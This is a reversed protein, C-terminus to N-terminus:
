RSVVLRKTVVQNELLIKVFYVGASHTSLDIEYSGSALNAAAAKVALKGTLDYVEINAELGPIGEVVLNVRGNTPNPFLHIRNALDVNKTSTVNQVIVLQSSTCGNADVVELTYFGAKLGSVYAESSIVKGEADVWTYQYGAVGGGVSVEISGNQQMNVEHTVNVVTIVIAAPQVVVASVVEECGDGDTVTLTYDGAPVNNLDPTTAGTNWSYTYGAAGGTVVSALSGDSGGFCLVPTNELVVAMSEQVTLTFSCAASNGNGDSVAYSVVTKGKPFVSGSALGATLAPAPNSACNDSTTPLAYEGVPQCYPLTMDAPCAITPAIDDKVTVIATGANSNGSADTVTLVVANEGVNSCTFASVDLSLELTGCNDSSGNDVMAPTISAKGNEDLSVTIDQVLVAPKTNDAVTITAQASSSNGALDVVTLTVEHDGLTSCDFSSVDLSMSEIACNDTSGDDIMDPTIAANGSADVPVTINKTVANPAEDDNLEVEIALIEQCDNADGISVTYTGPALNTISPTTEGNSWTYTYDPDPTGGMAVVTVLGNNIGCDANALETMEVELPNPELVTVTAIAPCNVVDYVTVSYTGPSLNSITATTEGNSWAYDFPSLGGNLTVTAQGDNAGFCSVHNLNVDAVLACGFPAVPITQAATCGNADTVIVTYNASPLGTITAATEGNSWLYTFPATGGTPNASATGDNANAATLGTATANVNVVAPEEITVSGVVECANDDIVTVTYTGPSLNAITATTEGNSWEFAFPPAANDLNVSAAGDNAGTCSVDEGTMAAVVTCGFQNVTVTQTKVCNNGDAITVTYNGPTLNTITQTTGGNSWAYTYSGTGGSVSATASGDNVGPASQANSSTSVVLEAPQYIAVSASATCAEGDTITVVYTGASLNSATASTAGNSWAFAYTGTGGGATVTASGTSNGFCAVNTPTGMVATVPPTETVNTASSAVCGNNNNSVTLTYTGPENVTPTLSNAGSVINGNTTTWQYTFQNGSSSGTGNLVLSSAFCNLLGNPGANATPQTINQSVLANATATCGNPATVTLAYNGPASVQPNQQTSSFGNPGSWSYTVDPTNSNGNLALNSVLCNLTGGSATVDPITNNQSVVATATATCGSGPHTVTLTYTGGQSVSPNQQNSSFGGPGAWSYTVGPTTSNGALQVSSVTCTIEGGSASANPATTNAAVTTTATKTCGNDTNTIKLTYSGGANVTPTLTTAGSVINGGTTTWLYTFNPGTSGSGSLAISPNNCNITGPPGANATPAATNQPVTISASASCTNESNTVTLEYVASANVVPTLTNAGSVINGGITTWNYVINQGTSSGTGNLTVSPASCTITPAPAVYAVPITPPAIVINSVVKTCGNADTVTCFYNGAALNNVAPTNAGNSWLYSYGPTGGSANVAATGGMGNCGAPSTYALSASLATAPQTIVFPGKSAHGQNSATVTVSYNGIPVNVLNQTTAGNSWQFTYPPVSGTVQIYISGTPTGACLVNNVSQVTITPAYPPCSLAWNWLGSTPLQGVEYIKKDPCVGYITPWYNINYPGTQSSNDIIPYNTGAVWNGQTGGVCGAPGYLCATNTSADGEIMFAMIANTGPPGYQTYLNKFAGSNHYNWCPGCWTASFDLFVVKDQNLYNYLTHSVGNLDTM